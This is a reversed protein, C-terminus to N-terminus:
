GDHNLNSIAMHIRIWTYKNAVQGLFSDKLYTGCRHDSILNSSLLIRQFHEGPNRRLLIFYEIHKYHGESDVNRKLYLSEGGQTERPVNPHYGNRSVSVLSGEAIGFHTSYGEITIEEPGSSLIDTILILDYVTNIGCIGLIVLM